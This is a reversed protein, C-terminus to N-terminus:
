YLILPFMLM